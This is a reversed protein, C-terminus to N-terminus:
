IDSVEERVNQKRKTEFVMKESMKKDFMKIQQCRKKPTSSIRVGQLNKSQNIKRPM